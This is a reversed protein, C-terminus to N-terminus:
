PKRIEKQSSYLQLYIKHSALQLEYVWEWPLYSISRWAFKSGAEVAPLSGSRAEVVIRMVIEKTDYSPLFCHM